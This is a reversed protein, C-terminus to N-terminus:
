GRDDFSSVKARIISESTTLRKREKPLTRCYVRKILDMVIVGSLKPAINKMLSRQTQTIFTPQWSQHPLTFLGRQKSIIDFQCQKALASLQGMSYPNGQGFPSTDLHSWISRRNPVIMRINGEPSLVRWLERMFRTPNPAFELSHCLTIKHVSTDALPIANLDFLAVKNRQTSPYHIAGIARDMLYINTDQDNAICYFPFGIYLHYGKITNNQQIFSALEDRVIQGLPTKYFRILDSIDMAM